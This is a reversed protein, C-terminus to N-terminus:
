EYLKYNSILLQSSDDTSVVMEGANLEKNKTFQQLAFTNLVLLLAAAVSTYKWQRMPIMKTESADLKDEIRAFLQPKPKARQHGKMSDFVDDVWKDKDEKM